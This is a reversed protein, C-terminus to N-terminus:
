GSSTARSARGCMGREEVQPDRRVNAGPEPSFVEVRSYMREHLVRRHLVEGDIPVKLASGWRPGDTPENGALPV